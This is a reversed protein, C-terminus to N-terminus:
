LLHLDDCFAMILSCYLSWSVMLPGAGISVDTDCSRYRHCPSYRPLPPLPLALIDTLKTHTLREYFYSYLCPWFTSLMFPSTLMSPPFNWLTEDRSLSSCTVLSQPLLLSLRKWPHTWRPQGTCLLWEQLWVCVCVFFFVWCTYQTHSLSFFYVHM